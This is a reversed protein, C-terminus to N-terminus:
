NCDRLQAEKFKAIQKECTQVLKSTQLPHTEYYVRQAYQQLPTFTDITDQAELQEQFETDTQHAEARARLFAERDEPDEVELSLYKDVTTATPEPPKSTTISTELMAVEDDGLPHFFSEINTKEMGATSDFKGGKIVVNFMTKKRRSTVLINEEVTHKSILRYVRVDKTQGIRHCRDQAQLDIAPNWDTDYFIVTDAGTLNIGLGGSRTSLIFCFYRTNENFLGMRYTRDEVKTSGDLRLYTLNHMSLFEELIDLVRSMQTFILARHGNRKLAPLLEALVQLKGCDFQLLKPDPLLIPAERFKELSPLRPLMNHTYRPNATVKKTIMQFKQTTTRDMVTDIIGLLGGELETVEKLKLSLPLVFNDFVSTGCSRACRRTLWKSGGTCSGVKDFPSSLLRQKLTIDSINKAQEDFMGHLLTRADESLSSVDPHSERCLLYKRYIDDPTELRANSFHLAAVNATIKLTEPIDKPVMDTILKPLVVSDGFQATVCFQPVVSEPYSYCYPSSTPRPEFLSPHNCVKRLQMLVGMVGVYSGGNLRSKTEGSRMYEDYLTRQRKALRCRIVKEIKTPLEHAVQRKLRRLMFPRLVVHLQEVIKTDCKGDQIMQTVPNNFWHNFDSESSFLPNDVMLFRLLSWLEMVNNQLPTGSLLLRRTTKYQRLIQWKKSKYNKIMHAEDLILYEWSLRKFHSADTVCTQYSVICVDFEGPRTWGKRLQKRQKISGYYVLIKIQPAWRRFEIEWNLLVSTPVVVLHPGWINENLALYALLSITQITKGLGMEDALIGSMGREHLSVLWTLGTHQYPRLTKTESLDMLEEPLKVLNEPRSDLGFDEGVENSINFQRQLEDSMRKAEELLLEKKSQMIEKKQQELYDKYQQQIMKRNHNWFTHVAKNMTAAIRNRAKADISKQQKAAALAQRHITSSVIARLDLSEKSQQTLDSTFFQSSIESVKPRKIAFVDDKLHEDSAMLSKLKSAGSSIESLKTGLDSIQESLTCGDRERKKKAVRRALVEAFEAPHFGLFQGKPTARVEPIQLHEDSATLSRMSNLIDSLGCKWVYLERLRAYTANEASYNITRLYTRRADVIDRYSYFGLEAVATDTGGQCLVAEDIATVVLRSDSLRGSLEEYSGGKQVVERDICAIALRIASVYENSRDM